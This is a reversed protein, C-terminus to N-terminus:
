AAADDDQAQLLREIEERNGPQAFYFGQVRDCGLRRVRELQVATEVGEAVVRLGREHSLAVIIELTKTSEEDDSQVLSRDLKLETTPLALLQDISSYGSGFDDISLGVGLTRLVRLRTIAQRDHSIPHTETIEVTLGNPDLALRDVNEVLRVLFRAAPLETASVNIAVEINRGRAQWEAACECGLDVMRAGIADILSGEEALPIFEDPGIMGRQPHIWRSLLEVAVITGTALDIQPQFYAVIENRELADALDDILTVSTVGMESEDLRCGAM